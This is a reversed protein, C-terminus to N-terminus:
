EPPRTTDPGPPSLTVTPAGERVHLGGLPADPTVPEVPTAATYALARNALSLAAMGMKYAEENRIRQESLWKEYLALAIKAVLEGAASAWFM